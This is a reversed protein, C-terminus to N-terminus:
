DEEGEEEVLGEKEWEELDIGAERLKRTCLWIDDDAGSLEYRDLMDSVYKDFQLYMRKLRKERFGFHEYLVWLVLACIERSHKKDYEITAEKWQRDIEEEMAKQEAKSFGVGLIKGSRGKRFNPM